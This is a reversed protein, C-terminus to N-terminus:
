LMINDVAVSTEVKAPQMFRLCCALYLLILFIHAKKLSKYLNRKDGGM